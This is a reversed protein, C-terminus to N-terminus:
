ISRWGTGTLPSSSSIEAWLPHVNVDPAILRYCPLVHLPLLCSTTGGPSPTGYDVSLKPRIM